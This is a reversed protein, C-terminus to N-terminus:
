NKWLELKQTEEDWFIEIKVVEKQPRGHILLKDFKLHKISNFIIRRCKRDSLNWWFKEWKSEYYGYSISKPKGNKNITILYSDDCMLDNGIEDWNLKSINQFLTDQMLDYNFRDILDPDDISNTIWNEKTLKGKKITLHLEKEYISGYGMHVYKLLRGQPSLLTEDVWHAYVRGNMYNSGFLKKLKANNPDSRCDKYCPTIANLFLSDNVIEWVAVYGRWCDTSGCGKFEPLSNINNLQLFSELPNSFISITDGKYMLKDPLQATLNAFVSM